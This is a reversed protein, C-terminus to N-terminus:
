STGVRSRLSAPVAEVSGFFKPKALPTLGNRELTAARESSLLFAVFSAAASPHSAGKLITITYEAYKYVPTLGVTQIHAADAEVAYFFGMDLQGSQLRGVLDQEPYVPFSALAKALRPDKLKRAANEVAEVTLVGKPDLKPDTRGVLVGKQTIVRYWPVGKRLEAGAKSSADFALVLPTRAFSSYWSVWAGNAKGELAQDAKASASIFVDGQRAGSKVESAILTSGAGYGQYGLHTDRTFAPGLGNEMYDVLSGAYLVSVAEKGAELAVPGAGFVPTGAVTVLAAVAGAVLGAGRRVRAGFWGHSWGAHVFWRPAVLRKV